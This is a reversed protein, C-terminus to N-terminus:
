FYIDMYESLSVNTHVTVHDAADGLWDPEWVGEVGMWDAENGIYIDTLSDCGDFANSGVNISPKGGPIIGPIYISEIDTDAFARANIYGLDATFSGFLYESPLIVNKVTSGDKLGRVRTYDYSGDVEVVDLDYTFTATKGCLACHSGDEDSVHNELRSYKGCKSCVVSHKYVGYDNQWATYPERKSYDHGSYRGNLLDTLTTGEKGEEDLFLKGCVQCEYHEDYGNNECDAETAAVHKMDHPATYNETIQRGCKTCQFMRLGLVTCDTSETIIVPTDSYEHGAAPIIIDEEALENKGAEDSFLKGCELCEYYQINGETECGAAVATHLMMSHKVQPAEASPTLTPEESIKTFTMKPSGQLFELNSLSVSFQQGSFELPFPMSLDMGSDAYKPDEITLTIGNRSYGHAQSIFSGKKITLEDDTFSLVIKEDSFVEGFGDTFSVPQSEWTGKLVVDKGTLDEYQEQEAGGCSALLIATIAALAILMSKRIGM